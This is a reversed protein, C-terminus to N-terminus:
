RQPTEDEDNYKAYCRRRHCLWVESGDPKLYLMEGSSADKGCVICKPAKV